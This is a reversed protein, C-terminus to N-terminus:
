VRIVGYDCKGEAHALIERLRWRPILPIPTVPSGYEGIESGDGGLGDGGGVNAGINGETGGEAGVNEGINVIEEVKSKEGGEGNGGEKDKDNDGADRVVEEMTIYDNDIEGEENTEMVAGGVGEEGNNKVDISVGAGAGGVNLVGVNDEVGEVGEIGGGEVADVFVEDNLNDSNGGEVVVVNAVPSVEEKIPGCM